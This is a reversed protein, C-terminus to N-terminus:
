LFEHWIFNITEFLKDVNIIDIKEHIFIFITFNIWHPDHEIFLGFNEYIESRLVKYMAVSCKTRTLSSCKIYM